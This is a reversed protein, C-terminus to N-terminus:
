LCILRMGLSTGLTETNCAKVFQRFNCASWPYYNGKEVISEKRVVSVHLQESPVRKVCEGYGHLIMTFYTLTIGLFFSAFCILLVELRRCLRHGSRPTSMLQLILTNNHLRTGLGRAKQTSVLVYTSSSHVLYYSSWKWDGYAM